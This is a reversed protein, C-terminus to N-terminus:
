FERNSRTRNRLAAAGVELDVHLRSLAGLRGAPTDGGRSRPEDCPSGPARFRPVGSPRQVM